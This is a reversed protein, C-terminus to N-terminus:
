GTRGFTPKTPQCPLNGPKPHDKELKQDQVNTEEVGTSSEVVGGAALRFPEETPKMCKISVQGTHDPTSLSAAIPMGEIQGEILRMICYNKTTVKAIVLHM